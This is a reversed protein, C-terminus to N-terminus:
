EMTSGGSRDYDDRRSAARSELANGSSSAREARSRGLRQPWWWPEAQAEDRVGAVIFAGALAVVCGYSALAWFPRMPAGSYEIAAVICYALTAAWGGSTWPARTRLIVISRVSLAILSVDLIAVIPQM